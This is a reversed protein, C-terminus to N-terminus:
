KYSIIIIIIIILGFLCTENELVIISLTLIICSITVIQVQIYHLYLLGM